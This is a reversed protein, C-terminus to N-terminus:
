YASTEVNTVYVNSIVSTEFQQRKKKNFELVRDIRRLFAHAAVGISQYNSTVETFNTREVGYSSIVYERGSHECKWNIDVLLQYTGLPLNKLQMNTERDEDSYDQIYELQTTDDDLKKALIM